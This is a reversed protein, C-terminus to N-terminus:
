REGQQRRCAASLMKFVRGVECADNSPGSRVIEEAVVPGVAARRTEVAVELVELAVLKGVATRGIASANTWRSPSSLVAGVREAARQGHTAFTWGTSPGLAVAFRAPFANVAIDAIGVVSASRQQWLAHIADAVVSIQYDVLVILLAVDRVLLDQFLQLFLLWLNREGAAIVSCFAVELTLAKTM